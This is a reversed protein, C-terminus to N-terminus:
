KTLGLRSPVIFFGCFKKYVRWKEKYRVMNVAMEHSACYVPGDKVITPCCAKWDYPGWFFIKYNDFSRPKYWSYKQEEPLETM